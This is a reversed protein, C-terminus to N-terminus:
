PHEQHTNAYHYAASKLADAHSRFRGFWRARGGAILHTDCKYSWYGDVLRRIHVSPVPRVLDVHEVADTLQQALWRAYDGDLLCSALVRHAGNNDTALVTMTAYGALGTVQICGPVSM